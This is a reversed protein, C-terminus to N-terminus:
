RSARNTSSASGPKAREPTEVIRPWDVRVWRAIRDEDREAARRAPTQWSWGLRKLLKWVGAPHPYREGTVQEIVQSVRALTWQDTDFGHAKPGLGLAHEVARTQAPSLRSRAGPVQSHLGQSGDQRWRAHWQSATQRSVGLRRAVEAQHVGQAFLEAAQLRRQQQRDRHQAATTTM